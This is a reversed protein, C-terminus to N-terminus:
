ILLAAWIRAAKHQTVENTVRSESLVNAHLEATAHKACVFKVIANQNGASKLASARKM